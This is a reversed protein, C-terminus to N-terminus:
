FTWFLLLIGIALDLGFSKHNESVLSRERFLLYLHNLFCHYWKFYGSGHRHLKIAVNNGIQTQRRM